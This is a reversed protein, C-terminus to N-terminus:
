LQKSQPNIIILQQNQTQISINLTKEIVQILTSFDNVSVVGTIMLRRQAENTFVMEMGYYEKILRAVTALTTEEFHWEGRNWAATYLATNTKATILENSVTDVNLVYGAQMYVTKGRGKELTVNVRGSTLVVDTAKSRANVNFETGTVYIKLQNAHVIFPTLSATQKVHFYANGELFVERAAATALNSNYRVSSNGNLIIISSDPLLIKKVQRIQTTESAMSVIGAASHTNFPYLFPFAFIVALIAAALLWWKGSTAPSRKLSTIVPPKSIQEFINNRLQQKENPSLFPIHFGTQALHQVLKAANNIAIQQQPHQQAYFTWYQQTEEDPLLVWQQFYEDAAFEEETFHSYYVSDQRMIPLLPYASNPISM